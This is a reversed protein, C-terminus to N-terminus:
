APAVPLVARVIFGAGGETELSGGYLSVRERMGILGHGAAPHSPGIGDDTVEIRVTDAGFTLRVHVLTARAHRRLNTLAEQVIRYAALDVGPPLPRRDGDVVFDAMLGGTRAGAVLDALGDLGPQPNLPGDETDRLMAVVRRMEALAGAGTTRITGLAARVHEPDDDVVQEAAGAQVVMVSVAHAVVDHLERAIRTREDVVAAMTLEAAAVEVDIARQLHRQARQEQRRLGVAAAWILAFVTWHFAIESGGQLQPITLDGLLLVAAMLLGGYVPQRGWGRRAVTFTALALPVLQGYFLVYTAGLLRTGPVLLLVAVAAPFPFRRRLALPLCVLAVAVTALGRSGDGQRSSLPVWIEATGVALLLLALAGDVLDTPQPRRPEFTAVGDRYTRRSPGPTM